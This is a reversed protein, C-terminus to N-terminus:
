VKRMVCLFKGSLLWPAEVSIRSVEYRIRMSKEYELKQELEMCKSELIVLRDKPVYTTELHSLKSNLTEMEDMLRKRSDELTSIQEAQSRVTMSTISTQFLVHSTIDVQM